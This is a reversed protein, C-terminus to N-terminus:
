GEVGPAPAQVRWSQQLTRTGGPPVVVEGGDAELRWGWPFRAVRVTEVAEYGCEFVAGGCDVRWGDVGSAARQAAADAGAPVWLGDPHRWQLGRPPGALCLRARVALPHAADDANTVTTRLRLAGDADLAIERRVEIRAYHHWSAMGSLTATLVLPGGRRDGALEHADCRGLDGACGEEYGRSAPYDADEWAAPALLARGGCSAEWFRGGLGPVIRLRWPGASWLMTAHPGALVAVRRQFDSLPRAEALQRVGYRELDSLLWALAEPRQAAPLGGHLPARPRLVDGDLEFTPPLALRAYDVSLSLRGVEAAEQADDQSLRRAKALDSDAADLLAPTLHGAQVPSFMRLHREPDAASAQIRDFYSRVPVHSRPFVGRLFEDVLAQPDAAADWLLRALYYARLAAWEGGGGQALDGQCFVSEVGHRRLLALDAAIARFNPFPLLYHSFDTHYDWVHLRAAIAAWGRLRAAFPANHPCDEVPHSECSPSMHCLRVVVNAEPRLHRPPDETYWYALTDIWRDPHSRAIRRAVANVFHLVPGVQSGERAVLARCHECECAGLWDNQSVSAIRAGPDATFWARVTEAAIEVIDPNTLCLQAMAERRRGDVLSFYEPHAAFYRAPPVLDYFTHVFHTYRVGGGWAADRDRACFEGNLRLRSSWPHRMAEWYGVDRVAFAPVQGLDLDAPLAAPSELGPRLECGPTLWRFGLVDQLYAYVAYLAGRPGQGFLYVRDGRRALRCADPAAPEAEGSPPAGVVFAPEAGAPDGEDIPLEPAGARSLADRLERAATWAVAGAGQAVVVRRATRETM